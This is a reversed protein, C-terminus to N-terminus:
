DNSVWFYYGLRSHGRLHSTLSVIVLLCIPLFIFVLNPFSIGVHVSWGVHPVHWMGVDGM